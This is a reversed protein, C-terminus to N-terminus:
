SSENGDVDVVSLQDYMHVPYISRLRCQGQLSFPWPMGTVVGKGMQTTVFPMHLEDIFERLRFCEGRLRNMCDLRSTVASCIYHDGIM